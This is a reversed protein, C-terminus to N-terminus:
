SAIKPNLVYTPMKPRLVTVLTGARRHNDLPEESLWEAINEEGFLCSNILCPHEVDISPHLEDHNWSYCYFVHLQRTIINEVRVLRAGLSLKVLCTLQLMLKKMPLNRLSVEYL